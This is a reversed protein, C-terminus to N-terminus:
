KVALRNSLSEYGRSVLNDFAGAVQANLTLDDVRDLPSDSAQDVPTIAAM